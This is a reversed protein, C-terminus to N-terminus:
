LHLEQSEFGIFKLLDNFDSLDNDRLRKKARKVQEPLFGDIMIIKISIQKMKECYARMAEIDFSVTAKVMKKCYLNLLRVYLQRSNFLYLFIIRLRDPLCKDKSDDLLHALNHKKITEECEAKTFLRNINCRGKTNIYDEYRCFDICVDYYLYFEEVSEFGLQKLDYAM